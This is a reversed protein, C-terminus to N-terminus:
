GEAARTAATPGGWQCDSVDTKRGPVQKLHRANVLLVKFRGELINYVPKWYVGTSEMGVDTVGEAAMWDAMALLGRTMTGWHRTEQHLRHDPEMRRVCAEISEKHVDLFACRLIITEMVSEKRGAGSSMSLFFLRGQTSGGFRPCNPSRPSTRALSSQPSPPGLILPRRGACALGIM